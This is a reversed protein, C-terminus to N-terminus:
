STPRRSLATGSLLGSIDHSHGSSPRCLVGCAMVAVASIPILTLSDAKLEIQEEYMRARMKTESLAPLSVVNYVVYRICLIEPRIQIRSQALYQWTIFQTSCWLSYVLFANIIKALM